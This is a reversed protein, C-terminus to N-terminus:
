GHMEHYLNKRKKKKKKSLMPIQVSPRMSALCASKRSSVSWWGQKQSKKPPFIPNQSTNAWPQSECDEQTPLIVPLLWPHRRAGSQKKVSTQYTLRQKKNTEQSLTKCAQAM